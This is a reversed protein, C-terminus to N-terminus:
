IGQIVVHPANNFSDDVFGSMGVHNLVAILAANASISLAVSCHAHLRKLDLISAM